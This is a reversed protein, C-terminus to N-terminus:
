ESYAKMHHGMQGQDHTRLQPPNQRKCQIMKSTTHFNRKKNALHTLLCANPITLNLKCNMKKDHLFFIWEIRSAYKRQFIQPTKKPILGQLHWVRPRTM